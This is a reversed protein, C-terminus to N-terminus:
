DGCADQELLWKKAADLAAEASTVVDPEIGAKYVEGNRDTTYAVPFVLRAGDELPMPVNASTLGATTSGFSRSLDRGVFALAVGEGASATNESFLVAVPLDPDRPEFPQGSVAIREVSEGVSNVQVVGNRYSTEGSYMESSGVHGNIVGEGALPGIAALMPWVNGGTNNRLDVIWGCLPATDIEILQRHAQDAFATQEEESANFHKFSPVEVLGIREDAREVSVQRIDDEGEPPSDSETRPRVFSAHPDDLREVASAVIAHAREMSDAGAAEDIARDRLTLWDIREAHVYREEMLYIAELVYAEVEEATAATVSASEAFRFDDFWATGPGIVLAAIMVSEAEPLEPVHIEYEEWDSDGSVVRSSMDESFLPGEPGNVVVVLTASQEIGRTRIHGTLTRPTDHVVSGDVTQSILASRPADDEEVRLSRDGAVVSVQDLVVRLGNLEVDWGRPHGDEGAESFDANVLAQGAFAQPGFAIGPLFSLLILIRFFYQM